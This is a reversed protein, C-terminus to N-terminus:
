RSESKLLRDASHVFCGLSISNGNADFDEVTGASTFKGDPELKIKDTVKAISAFTGNATYRFFWYTADYEHEEAPRWTGESIGRSATGATEVMSGDNHFAQLSRVTRILAGSTCDTVTVSVTWVGDLRGREQAQLTPISAAVGMALITCIGFMRTKM